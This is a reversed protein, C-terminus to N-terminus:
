ARMGSREGVQEFIELKESANSANASKDALEALARSALGMLLETRRQLVVTVGDSLYRSLAPAFYESELRLDALLQRLLETVAM